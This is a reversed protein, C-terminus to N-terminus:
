RACLPDLLSPSQAAVVLQLSAVMGSTAINSGVDAHSNGHVERKCACTSPMHGDGDQRQKCSPRTESAALGSHQQEAVIRQGAHRYRCFRVFGSSLM